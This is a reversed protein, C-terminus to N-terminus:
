ELTPIIQYNSDLNLKYFRTFSNDTPSMIYKQNAYDAVDKLGTNNFFRTKDRNDLNTTNIKNM